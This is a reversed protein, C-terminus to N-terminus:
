AGLLVENKVKHYTLALQICHKLETEPIQENLKFVIARNGEFNFVGKYIKRFTPVLKTSCSFYMAYQDPSKQKWDMRLTSGNMTLYSPENWKLTEEISNLGDISAAVELVLARLHNMKAQVNEPYHDFIEKVKSNTNLQM